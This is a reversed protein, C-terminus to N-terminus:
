PLVELQETTREIIESINRKWKRRSFVDHKAFVFDLYSFGEQILVANLAVNVNRPECSCFRSSDRCM